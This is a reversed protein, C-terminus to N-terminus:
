PRAGLTAVLGPLALVLGLAAAGTWLTYDLWLRTLRLDTRRRSSIFGAGLHLLNSVLFVVGIGAHLAVYFLLAAATAGLAHARPYPTIGGILTGAAAIAAFLALMALGIWGRVASGGALARLSGRAAAAALGLAAVAVLALVRSPEFVTAPPWNPASIWLYFTGFVLCTFLTGDAVLTWILALWPPPDAAETHPPVSVGHGIPMPGYDRALGARQAASVFLGATVFAVALAVLYLQFLVALVAAATALATFLPLYTARSLVILQEPAGSVMHVGVTEQWGNRAFGLYGDGRALSPALAGPAIRDARTTVQPLSAFAYPAPPIPM